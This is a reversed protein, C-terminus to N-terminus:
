RVNLDPAAAGFTPLGLGVRAGLPETAGTLDFKFGFIRHPLTTVCLSTGQTIARREVTRVSGGLRTSPPKRKDTSDQKHPGDVQATTLENGRQDTPVVLALM